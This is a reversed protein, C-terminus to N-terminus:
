RSARLRRRLLASQLLNVSSSGAWYLGLAAALHWVVFFSILVPLVQLLSKAQASMAPNLWIAAYSLVAVALALWLDPRALQTDM